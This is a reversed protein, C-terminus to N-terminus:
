KVEELCNKKSLIMVVTTLILNIVVVSLGILLGVVDVIGSTIIFYLVVATLDLRIYYKVMM